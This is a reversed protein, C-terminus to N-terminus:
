IPDHVKQRAGFASLLDKKNSDPIEPEYKKEPKYPNEKWPRPRDYNETKGLEIRRKKTLNQSKTIWKKKHIEKEQAKVQKKQATLRRKEYISDLLKRVKPAETGIM